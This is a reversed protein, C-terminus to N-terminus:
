YQSKTSYNAGAILLYKKDLTNQSILHHLPLTGEGVAFWYYLYQIIVHLVLFDVILYMVYV